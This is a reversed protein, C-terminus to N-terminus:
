ILDFEGNRTAAVFAHWEATGFVLAPGSQNKSDRVAVATDLFAAEVCNGGNNSYSSKFWGARSLDVDPMERGRVETM